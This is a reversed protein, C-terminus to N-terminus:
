ASTTMPDYCYVSDSWAPVGRVLHTGTCTKLIAESKVRPNFFQSYWRRAHGFPGDAPIQLIQYAPKKHLWVEGDRRLGDVLLGSYTRRIEEDRAPDQLATPSKLMGASMVRCAGEDVPTICLLQVGRAERFRALMLGPGHYAGVTTMVNPTAKEASDRSMLVADSTETSSFGQILTERQHYLQGAVENEYAQLRGGGHLYELHPGDSMNDFVEVPHKLDAVFDLGPWRVFDPDDWEPIEPLAIDPAQEEPDHWCFVIGWREELLWSRLRAKEPIPGDFYPIENCKGDPGFRWAHFPCRISDGELARGSLVTASNPCKGLHTGMHPCYADLMIAKGSEGRYLVMDNGFFRVNTVNHTVEASSAVAFWGRAFPYEGLRYDASTAM